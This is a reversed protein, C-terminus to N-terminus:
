KICDRNATTFINARWRDHDCGPNAEYLDDQTNSGASNGVIEDAHSADILIGYGNGDAEGSSVRNRRAGAPPHQCLANYRDAVYIGFGRYCAFRTLEIGAGFNQDATFSIFQNRTSLSNADVGDGGNANAAFSVLQNRHADWLYVGDGINGSADFASLYSRQAGDLTVGVENGTAQFGSLVARSSRLVIGIAFQSITAGSAATLVFKTASGRVYVGTIASPPPPSGPALPGTISNGGLDLEVKPAAVDLCNDNLSSSSLAGTVTYQGARRIVCGCESINHPCSPAAAWALAPLAAILGTLMVAQAAITRLRDLKFMM